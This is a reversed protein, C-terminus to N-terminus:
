NKLIDISFVGSRCILYGSVPNFDLAGGGVVVAFNSSRQHLFLDLVPYNVRNSVSWNFDNDLALMGGCWYIIDFLVEFVLPYCYLFNRLQALKLGLSWERDKHNLDIAGFVRNVNVFNFNYAVNAHRDVWKAPLRADRLAIIAVEEIM